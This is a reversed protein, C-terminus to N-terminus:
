LFLIREIKEIAKDNSLKTREVSLALNDLGINQAVTIKLGKEKVYADLWLVALRKNGDTVVHDNIIYYLFAAAKKGPANYKQLGYYDQEVTKVASDIKAMNEKTLPFSVQGKEILSKYTECLTKSIPHMSTYKEVIM